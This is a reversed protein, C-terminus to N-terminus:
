EKNSPARIFVFGHKIENVDNVYDFRTGGQSSLKETM